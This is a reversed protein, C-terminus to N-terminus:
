IQNKIFVHIHHINEYGEDMCKKLEKLISIFHTGKITIKEQNM